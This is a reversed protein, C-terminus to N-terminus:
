FPLYDPDEEPLETFHKDHDHYKRVNAENSKIQINGIYYGEWNRIRDITCNRGRKGKQLIYGTKKCWDRFEQLTIVFSKHRRLANHKFNKYRDYVPDKIRSYRNYHKHCMGKKKACPKNKCGYACCQIGAKKKAESIKFELHKPTFFDM